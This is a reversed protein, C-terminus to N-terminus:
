SALESFVFLCFSIEHCAPGQFLLFRLKGELEKWRYICRVCGGRRGMRPEEESFVLSSLQRGLRGAM